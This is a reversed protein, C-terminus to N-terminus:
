ASSSSYPLNGNYLPHTLSYRVHLMPLKVSIFTIGSEVSYIRSLLFSLAFTFIFSPSLLLQCRDTNHLLHLARSLYSVYAVWSEVTGFLLDDAEHAQAVEAHHDIMWRLKIASFYTSLPLGTRAPFPAYINLASLFIPPM